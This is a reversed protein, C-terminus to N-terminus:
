ANAVIAECFDERVGSRFIKCHVIPFDSCHSTDNGSFYGAGEERESPDLSPIAAEFQRQTCYPIVNNFVSM